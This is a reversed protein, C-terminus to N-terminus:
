DAPSPAAATDDDPRAAGGMALMEIGVDHHLPLLLEAHFRRLVVVQGHRDAEGDVDGSTSTLTAQFVVRFRRDDLVELTAASDVAPLARRLLDPDIAARLTLQLAPADAVLWDVYGTVPFPLDREWALLAEVAAARRRASARTAWVSWAILLATAGVLILGFTSPRGQGIAAKLAVITSLAGALIALMILCGPRDHGVGAAAELRATRIHPPLKDADRPLEHEARAARAALRELAASRVRDPERYDAM